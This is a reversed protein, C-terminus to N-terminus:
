PLMLGVRAKVTAIDAVNIAGSTDLDFKFNTSNTVQGSRVKVGSLDSADLIRSGDTDGVLFGVTAVTTLSDNVGTLTVTVRKNDAVGTLTVTVETESLTPTATLPNNASDVASANGVSTIVGDFQFVIQHGPGITRSEVTIAPATLKTDIPLDFTGAAGHNKRSQVGTLALTSVISFSQTVQPAANFTTDGAQDAAITCTGGAFATVYNGEVTCVTPTQSTLITPLESSAMASVLGSGGISISPAPGFSITQSLKATMTNVSASDLSSGAANTATVSCSYSDGALLGTVTIPSSAAIAAYPTTSTCTATYYAIAAGGDSMPPTFSIMAETAGSIAGVIEPAGPPMAVLIDDLHIDYGLSSSGNFLLYNSMGSFTVPLDYVYQYWGTEAVVPSYGKFRNITGLLTAGSTSSSTSIYVDVKDSQAGTADRYMWFSVKAGSIGVLSFMPSVLRASGGMAADHSNFYVLNSGSNANAGAPFLTGPNTRWVADAHIGILSQWNPPLAPTTTVEFDELPLMFLPPTVSNTPASAPGTGNINTATVTFTYTMGAILGTVTLPSAPGSVTLNGPASTATYTTVVSGGNSLPPSFTITAQNTGATATGIIPADPASKPIVMNTPASPAGTGDGNTATVTFTYAVGNTLGSVTLPSAAGSATVNGPNSIASYSIITSTGNYTPPSFTVSAQADGATASAANPMSPVVTVSASCGAPEGGNLGQCSWSWPGSGTLASPGGQLCLGQTPATWYSAGNAGGCAGDVYGSPLTFDWVYDDDCHMYGPQQSATGYVDNCGANTGQPLATDYELGSFVNTKLWNYKQSIMVSQAAAARFDHGSTVYMQFAEAWEEAPNHKPAVCGGYGPDYGYKSIWDKPDDSKRLACGNAFSSLDYSIDYFGTTDILGWHPLLPNKPAPSYTGGFTGDLYHGYEHLLTDVDLAASPQRGMDTRPDFYAAVFRYDSALDIWINQYFYAFLPTGNADQIAGVCQGSICQVMEFASMQLNAPLANMPLAYIAAVTDKSVDNPHLPQMNAYLPFTLAIPALVLEREALFQDMQTLCASTVLDSVPLGARAQFAHLVRLHEDDLGRLSGMETQYGLMLFGSFLKYAFSGRDINGNSARWVPVNMNYPTGDMIQLANSDNQLFQSSLATCPTSILATAVLWVTVLLRVLLHRSASDPPKADNAPDRQMNGTNRM